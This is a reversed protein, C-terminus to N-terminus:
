GKTPVITGQHFAQQWRGAILKYITSRLSRGKLAGEEDLRDLRYTALYVGEALRTVRFDNIEFRGPSPTEGVLAEIVSKKDFVKGSSGFELFEDAFLSDLLEASHRSGPSYVQEELPLLTDRISTM